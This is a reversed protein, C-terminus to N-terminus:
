AVTEEDEKKGKHQFGQETELARDLPLGETWLSAVLAVASIALMVIFVAHLGSMYSDQLHTKEASPAMAKIIEVLGSSDSSYEDARAALDPFTLLKKKMANQFVVGGVAVGVTQGFARFFAFLIVADAMTKNTSSAQVALAMAAFLLGTGVGGVINLFIWAATSTGTKIYLLLGMGFTTLVWGSWTAWRYRGTIAMVIGAAISAPAVTFTQPFMAVGALISSFDKIALYYFPLYYLAM